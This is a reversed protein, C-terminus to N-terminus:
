ENKEDQKQLQSRLKMLLKGLHNEGVGNCVGWYTDRWYNGEILKRNKTAILMSRWPEISFKQKLLKRMVKLRMTDWQDRLTVKNGLKKAEGPSAALRIAEREKLDTTKAAQYAHEVSPYIAGDLEVNVSWFNSLWRYIGSFEDIPKDDLSNSSKTTSM